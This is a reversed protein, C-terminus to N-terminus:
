YNELIKLSVKKDITSNFKNRLTSDFEGNDSLFIPPNLYYMTMLDWIAFDINFESITNKDFHLTNDNVFFLDILKQMGKRQNNGISM